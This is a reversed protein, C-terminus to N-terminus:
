WNKLSIIIILRVLFLGPTCHDRIKLAEPQQADLAISGVIILSARKTYTIAAVISMPAAPIPSSKEPIWEIKYAKPKSRDQPM